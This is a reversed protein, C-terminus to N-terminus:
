SRLAEYVATFVALALALDFPARATPLVEIGLEENKLSTDV